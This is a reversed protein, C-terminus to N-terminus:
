LCQSGEPGHDLTLPSALARRFLLNVMNPPCPVQYDVLARIPAVAAFNSM